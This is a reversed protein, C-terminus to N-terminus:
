KALAAEVQVFLEEPTGNNTLVADALQMVAKINLDHEGTQAMERDEQECFKEFSVKDLQTGRLVSREYRVERDADVAWLILGQEKLKKASAINRISEFVIDKDSEIMDGLILKDWYDFGHKARMDNGVFNTNDRNIEMGRRLIEAEIYKRVSYHKFGKQQVLYEVVTGKGAGNTGTIGIIM